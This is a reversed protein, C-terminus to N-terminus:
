QHVQPYCTSTILTFRTSGAMADSSAGSERGTMCRVRSRLAQSGKGLSNKPLEDVFVVRRPKKYSAHNTLCYEIISRETVSGDGVVVACVAQGWMEDPIGVM